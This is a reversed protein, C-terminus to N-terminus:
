AKKKYFLMYAANTKVAEKSCDSVDDDDFLGWTSSLRGNPRWDRAFATYHGFGMRGYHNCVAFLDYMIPDQCNRSGKCFPRMDLNELPFDVLLEIKERQMGGYSFSGRRNDHFEFRKLLLILVDPMKDEWFSLVKKALQHKKCVNCYWANTEDLTEEQTFEQLCQELSLGSLTRGVNINKIKNDASSLTISKDQYCDSMKDIDICELWSESWDISLFFLDTSGYSKNMFEGLTIKEHPLSAGLYTEGLSGLDGDAKLGLIDDFIKTLNKSSQIPQGMYTIIRVPLYKSFNMHSVFDSKPTKSVLQGIPSDKRIFRSIHTWLLYRIRLCNWKLLDFSIMMPFGINKVDFPGSNNSGKNRNYEIKRQYLVISAPLKQNQLHYAGIIIEDDLDKVSVNNHHRKLAIKSIPHIELFTLTEKDMDIESMSSKNQILKILANKTQEISSFRGVIVSYLTPKLDEDVKENEIQPVYIITISKTSNRPIALEVTQYYDFSVSIKSCDPCLLQSRCQLGIVDKIKSDERLAEKTWAEKAIISDNTGDGEPKETYPKITVRNLDENLKSLLFNVLEHGDQQQFGNYDPNLRGLLKKFAYPANSKKQGFWVEKLLSCYERALDGGTGDRNNPNIENEFANSLFYSTLPWIHSLCQICSSMYCSNGLNVLGVRGRFGTPVKKHFLQVPLEKNEKATVCWSKHYPWHSEQCSKSCYYVATCGKCRHIAFQRCVFCMNNSGKKETVDLNNNTDTSAGCDNFNSSTTRQLQLSIYNTDTDNEKLKMENVSLVNSPYLDFFFSQFYTVVDRSAKDPKINDPTSLEVIERVIPPGGGYWRHLAEWADQCLPIINCPEISPILEFKCTDFSFEEKRSNTKLSLINWNNLDPIAITSNEDQSIWLDWWKKDILYMMSGVLTGNKLRKDVFEKQLILISSLQKPLPPKISVVRREGNTDSDDDVIENDSDAIHLERFITDLNSVKTM